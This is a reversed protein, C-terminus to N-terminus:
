PTAPPPRLLGRRLARAAGGTPVPPPTSAAGGGGRVPDCRGIVFYASDNSILSCNWSDIDAFGAVGDDRLKRSVQRTKSEVGGRRGREMLVYFPKGRNMEKLYPEFQPGEKNIPRIENNSYLTEGRWTILWSIIDESCVRKPKADVFDAIAGLGARRVLPTYAEEIPGPQPMLTCHEYYAEFLYRQSWAPTLMPLYVNLAWLALAASGGLLGARMWPLGRRWLGLLWALTLAGGIWPMWTEYRFAPVQLLAATTGGVHKAFTTDRWRLLPEGDSPWRLLADWDLPLNEPMPRDYKYTYMQRLAQPEILMAAVVAAALGAGVLLQLRRSRDDIRDLELLAFAVLLGLAPAAPLIYHHFKTSSVTFVAFAVAFWVFVFTRMARGRASDVGADLQRPPRVVSVLAAPVLAVWPFLGYGLWEIFHEFTGHDIQHVGSGVRNFHDHIFFRDYYPRGHRCFMAVYWPLATLFFLPVGRALELRALARWHGTVALWVFLVAGPLLFGLLGKALTAQGLMMYFCLLLMRRQWRDKDADTWRGRSRVMPVLLSALLGLAPPVYFLLHWAGNQQIRAAWAAPGSMGAGAHPDVLDVAIIGLQPVINALFFGVFALTQAVMARNSLPERRGFVAAIFFAIAITLTAVFPIDTQASRSTMYIFPSLGVVTAAWFAHRRSLAREVALYLSSVSAAGILAIPLRFAWDSYGILKLFSVEAWFIWIPKSYFWEGALPESGIKQRYGWWPNVWDYSELMNRAVEGYHTEWPDWLGFSGCNWVYLAFIAAITGWRWWADGTAPVFLDLKAPDALLALEAAAADGRQPDSTPASAADTTM